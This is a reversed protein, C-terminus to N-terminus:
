TKFWWGECRIELVDVGVGSHGEIIQLDNTFGVLFMGGTGRLKCVLTKDIYFMTRTHQLGKIVTVTICRANNIIFHSCHGSRVAAPKPLLGIGAALGEGIKREM